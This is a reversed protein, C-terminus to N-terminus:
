NTTWVRTGWAEVRECNLNLEKARKEISGDYDYMIHSSIAGGVRDTFEIDVDKGFHKRIDARTVIKVKMTSPKSKNTRLFRVELSLANYRKTVSETVM